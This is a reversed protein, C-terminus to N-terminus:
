DNVPFGYLFYASLVSVNIIALIANREAAMMNDDVFNVRHSGHAFFAPLPPHIPDPILHTQITKYELPTPPDPLRILVTLPALMEAGKFLSSTTASLARVDTLVTASAPTPTLEPFFLPSATATLDRTESTNSLFSPSFGAGFILGVPTCLMHHLVM